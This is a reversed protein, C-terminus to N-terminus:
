LFIYMEQHFQIVSLLAPTQFGDHNHDHDPHFHPCPSQRPIQKELFRNSSPFYHDILVPLATSRHLSCPNQFLSLCKLLLSYCPFHEQRTHVQLWIDIHFLFPSLDEPPAPISYSIKLFTRLSKYVPYHHTLPFTYHILQIHRMCSLFVIDIHVPFPHLHHFPM